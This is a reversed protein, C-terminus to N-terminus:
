ASTHIGVYSFESALIDHNEDQYAVTLVNQEFVNRIWKSAKVRAGGRDM